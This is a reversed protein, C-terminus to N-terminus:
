PRVIRLVTRRRGEEVVLVSVGPRDLLRVAEPGRARECRGDPAVRLVHLDPERLLRFRLAGSSGTSANERSVDTTPALHKQLRWSASSSTYSPFIGSYSSASHSIVGTGAVAKVTSTRGERGSGWCTTAEYSDHVVVTDRDPITWDRVFGVALNAEASRPSLSWPFARDGDIQVLSETTDLRLRSVRSTETGKSDRRAIGIEWGPVGASDSVPELITISLSPPNAAAGEVWTWSEGSRPWPSSGGPPHAVQRGDFSRLRWEKGGRVTSRWAVTGLDGQTRYRPATLCEECEGFRFGWCIRGAEGEVVYIDDLSAAQDCLERLVGPSMWQLVRERETLPADYSIWQAIDQEVASDLDRQFPLLCSPRVWASTSGFVFEGRDLLTTLAFRRLIATDVQTSDGDRLTLVARWDVVGGALEVSDTWTVELFADAQAGRIRWEEKLGPHLPLAAQSEWAAWLLVGTLIRFFSASTRAPLVSM